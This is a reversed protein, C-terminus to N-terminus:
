WAPWNASVRRSGPGLRCGAAAFPILRVQNGLKWAPHRVELRLRGVVHDVDRARHRTEPSPKWCHPLPHQPAWAEVGVRIDRM